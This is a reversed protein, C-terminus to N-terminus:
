VGLFNRTALILAVGIGWVGFGILLTPGIKLGAALWAAVLFSIRPVIGLLLGLSFQRM